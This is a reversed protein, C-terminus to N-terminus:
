SRNVIGFFVEYSVEFERDIKVISKLLRLPIVNIGASAGLNQLYRMFIKANSFKLRFKQTKYSFYGPKFSTCLLELANKSPYQKIPSPSQVKLLINEWEAFTSDLLCSFALVKSSCYLKELMPELRDVWQLALNSVILDHYGFDVTEMDGLHFFVQPHGKFKLQVQEIMKPSIDNLTYVSKQFKQMLSEPVYGTGTGLDLISSPNFDPIRQILMKTLIGACESQVTAVQEYSTSAADFRRQIKRKNEDM